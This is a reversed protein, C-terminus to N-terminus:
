GLKNRPSDKWLDSTEDQAVEKKRMSQRQDEELGDQSETMAVREARSKRIEAAMKPDRKEWDDMQKRDTEMATPRNLKSPEADDKGSNHSTIQVRAAAAGRVFQEELYGKRPQALQDHM